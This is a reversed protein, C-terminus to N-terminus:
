SVYETTHSQAIINFGLAQAKKYLNKVARERDQKEYANIGADTYASESTWLRYLIRAIADSLM